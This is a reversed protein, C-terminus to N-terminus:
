QLGQLQSITVCQYGQQELYTLISDLADATTPHIDHMLIIAGPYIHQQVEQFTSAANRTKWDLTDVGWLITPQSSLQELESNRAGYPPRITLPERGTANKILENAKNINAEAEAGTMKSLNEHGYSHNGIEHGDALVQQALQPAKEVSSGLMYFTAKVQHQKLTNLIRPTVAESPGDDFTLAVYKKDNTNLRFVPTDLKKDINVLPISISSLRNKLTNPAYFVKFNEGDVAFMEFTKWTADTLQDIQQASLQLQENQRQIETRVEKSLRNLRAETDIFQEITVLKKHQRDYTFTQVSKTIADENNKIVFSIYNGSTTASISSDLRTAESAVFADRKAYVADQIVKDVAAEGTMPYVLKYYKTDSQEKIYSIGEFPSKEKVLISDNDLDEQTAGASHHETKNYGLLGLFMGVCLTLVTLLVLNIKGLKTKPLWQM